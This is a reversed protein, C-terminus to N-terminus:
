ELRNEQLVEQSSPAVGESIASRLQHLAISPVDDVGKISILAWQEDLFLHDSSLKGEPCGGRELCSSPEPRDEPPELPSPNWPSRMQMPGVTVWLESSVQRGPVKTEQDWVQTRGIRM